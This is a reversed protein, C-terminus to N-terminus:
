LQFGGDAYHRSSYMIIVTIVRFRRAAVVHERGSFPNKLPRGASANVSSRARTRKSPMELPEGRRKTNVYSLEIVPPPAM